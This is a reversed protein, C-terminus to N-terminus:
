PTPLCAERAKLMADALRQCVQALQEETCNVLAWGSMGNNAFVAPNACFGQLAKAAFYDRMTIGAKLPGKSHTKVNGALDRKQYHEGCPFAPGGTIKESM